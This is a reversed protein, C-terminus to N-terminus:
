FHAREQPLPNSSPIQRGELYNGFKLGLLAM